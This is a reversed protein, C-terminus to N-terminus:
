INGFLWNGIFEEIAQLSIDNPNREIEARVSTLKSKLQYVDFLDVGYKELNKIFKAREKADFENAVLYQNMKWFEDVSCGLVELDYDTPKGRKLVTVAKRLAIYAAKYDAFGLNNFSVYTSAMTPTSGGSSIQLGQKDGSLGHGNNSM